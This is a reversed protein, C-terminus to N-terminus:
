KSVRNYGSEDATDRVLMTNHLYSNAPYVVPDKCKGLICTPMVNDSSTDELYQDYNGRSTAGVVVNDKFRPDAKKKVEKDTGGFLNYQSREEPSATFANKSTTSTTASKGDASVQTNMSIIQQGNDASQYVGGLPRGNASVIQAKTIAKQARARESVTKASNASLADLKSQAELYKGKYYNAERIQAPALYGGGAGAFECQKTVSRYCAPLLNYPIIDTASSIVQRTQMNIVRSVLVVGTNNRTITGGLLYKVNTDKAIKKWNRSLIFDGDKTVSLSGTLKFETVEFGRSTMEHTFFEALARGLYGANEYTDTDVFSTVALRPMTVIKVDGTESTRDVPAYPLLYHLMHEQMTTAMRATVASIEMGKQHYVSSNNSQTTSVGQIRANAPINSESSTNNLMVCGPLLLSACLAVLLSSKFQMEQVEIEKLLVYRVSLKYGGSIVNFVVGFHLLPAM